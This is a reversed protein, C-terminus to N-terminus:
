NEKTNCQINYIRAHYFRLTL